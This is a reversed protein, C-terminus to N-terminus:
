HTRVKLKYDGCKVLPLVGEAVTPEDATSPIAGAPCLVNRDKDVFGAIFEFTGGKLLGARPAIM